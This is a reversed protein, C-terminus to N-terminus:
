GHGCIVPRQNKIRRANRANKQGLVVDHKKFVPSEPLTTRQTQGGAIPSDDAVVESKGHRALLYATTMGAIGAGVVYVNADIDQLLKAQQPMAATAMWVSTSQGSDDHM